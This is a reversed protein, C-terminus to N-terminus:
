HPPPPVKDGEEAGETERPAPPPLAVEEGLTDGVRLAVVEGEGEEQEVSEGAEVCLRPVPV